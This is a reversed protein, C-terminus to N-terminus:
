NVKYFWMYCDDRVKQGNDGFIFTVMNVPRHIVTVM